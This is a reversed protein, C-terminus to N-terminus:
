LGSAGYFNLMSKSEGTSDSLKSRHKTFKPVLSEPMKYEYAGFEINLHEVIDLYVEAEDGKDLHGLKIELQEKKLM